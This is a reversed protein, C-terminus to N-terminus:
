EPPHGQPPIDLWIRLEGQEEALPAEEHEPESVAKTLIEIGSADFGFLDDQSFIRQFDEPKFFIEFKRSCEDLRSLYYQSNEDPFNPDWEEALRSNESIKVGAGSGTVYYSVRDGAKVYRAARKVVEYAASPNRTGATLDAEYRELSDHLTETRAFDLVSWQHSIIQKAVAVYTEHLASINEHLLSEICRRIYRRCFPELSRSILSSGKISVKNDYSLLAYNKRKYSLMRQFRGAYALHIGEPLSKSIREVFTSEEEEGVVNDPPIFYIGDTDVEIVTGNYLEVQRMIERLLHQGTTTVVDAQEYDNFLARAYGLYGYFSNALIKYSSQLADVKAREAPDNTSKMIRKAELRMSLLKRLILPFIGLQDTKPTIKRSVIISPYLSEVDAHVVTKLLGTVFIDTYGGTTQAGQQPKPISHKQRVYERLLLSEIKAASGTRLITGFPLPCMQALFFSPPELHEAIVRTAAAEHESLAVLRAPHSKWMQTQERSAEFLEEPITYGFHPAVYSLSSHELSRRAFDYSQTLPLTDVLHRGPLEYFGPEYPLDADQLPSIVRPEEGDRGISLEVGYLETRATLYPLIFSHLGHGEIVDPNKETIIEVARQLLQEESFKRGDISEKWGRNDSISLVVIKDETKRFDSPKGPHSLAKLSIQLRHLDNFSMGKFLTVGSQLLYHQLPDPRLFLCDTQTYSEFRRSTQRAYNELVFRVADWMDGWRSFAALFQFHNSGALKKIWHYKPFGSLLSQDTLHFFPYFPVDQHQVADGWRRYIRIQSDNVQHLAVVHQEDNSGYLLEDM